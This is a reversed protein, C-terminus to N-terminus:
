GVWFVFKKEWVRGERGIQRGAAGRVASPRRPLLAPVTQETSYLTHVYTNWPSFTYTISTKEKAASLGYGVPSAVRLGMCKVWTGVRCLMDSDLFYFVQPLLKVPNIGLKASEM